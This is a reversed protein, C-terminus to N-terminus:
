IGGLKYYVIGIIEHSLETLFDLANESPVFSYPRLDGILFDTPVPIPDKGLRRFVMLSRRMHVASTVLNFRRPIERSLFLANERTNRSKGEVIVDKSPVGWGILVDKMVSAEDVDEFVKGGSVYIRGGFERWIEFAKELRFLTSRTPVYGDRTKLIGGGLVVTDSRVPNSSVTWLSQIPLLLFESFSLYSLIALILYVTKRKFVYVIVFSTVVIGPFQVFAGVLKEM